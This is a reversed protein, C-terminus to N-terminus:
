SMRPVKIAWTVKIACTIAKGASHGWRNPRTWGGSSERQNTGLTSGYLFTAVELQNTRPKHRSAFYM